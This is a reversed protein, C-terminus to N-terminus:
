RTIFYANGLILTLKTYLLSSDRESQPINQKTKNLTSIASDVMEMRLLMTGRFYGLYLKTREDQNKLSLAELDSILLNLSDNSPLEAKILENIQRIKQEVESPAQAQSFGILWFLFICIGILKRLPRHFLM